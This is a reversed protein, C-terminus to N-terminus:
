AGLLLLTLRRPAVELNRTVKVDVAASARNTKQSCVSVKLGSSCKLVVVRNESDPIPALILPFTDSGPQYREGRGRVIRLVMFIISM